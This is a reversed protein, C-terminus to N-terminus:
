AKITASLTAANTMSRNNSFKFQNILKPPITTRDKNKNATFKLSDRTM